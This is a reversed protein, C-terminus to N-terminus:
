AYVERHSEKYSGYPSVQIVKREPETVLEGFQETVQIIDGKKISTKPPMFIYVDSRIPNGSGGSILNSENEVMCKLFVATGRTEDGTGVDKTIPTIKVKDRAYFGSM